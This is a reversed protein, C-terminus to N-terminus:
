AIGNEVSFRAQLLYDRAAEPLRSRSASVTVAPLPCHARQRLKL